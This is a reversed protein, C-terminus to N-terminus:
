RIIAGIASTVAWSHKLRFCEKILGGHPTNYPIIRYLLKHVFNYASCKVSVVLSYVGSM